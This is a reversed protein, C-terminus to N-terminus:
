AVLWQPAIEVGQGLVYGFQINMFGMPELYRANALPGADIAVLGMDGALKKVRARAVEDDAAM